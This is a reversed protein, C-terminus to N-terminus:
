NGHGYVVYCGLLRAVLCSKHYIAIQLKVIYVSLKLSLNAHIGVNQKSALKLHIGYIYFESFIM